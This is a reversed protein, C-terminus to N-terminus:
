IALKLANHVSSPPMRLERANARLALGRRRSSKSELLVGTSPPRVGLSFVVPKPLRWGPMLQM